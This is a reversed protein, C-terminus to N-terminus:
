KLRLLIIFINISNCFNFMIEMYISFDDDEKNFKSRSAASFHMTTSTSFCSFCYFTPWFYIGTRYEVIHLFTCSDAVFLNNRSLFVKKQSFYREYIINKHGDHINKIHQKSRASGSQTLNDTIKVASCNQCAWLDIQQLM